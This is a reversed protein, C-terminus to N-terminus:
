TLTVKEQPLRSPAIYRGKPIKEKDLKLCSLHYWQVKCHKNDSRSIMDDYSEDKGRFCWGQSSTDMSDQNTYTPMVNQKSFWKGNLKPLFPMKVFTVARQFIDNIFDEDLSICQYFVKGGCFLAM